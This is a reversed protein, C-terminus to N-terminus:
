FNGKKYYRRTTLPHKRVAELHISLREFAAALVIQSILARVRDSIGDLTFEKSDFVRLKNTVTPAFREVRDALERQEDEGKLLIVSTDSEILELTGHFFDSAHVPRTWIWQMEELICMGYYWAEFWVSGSGTMIHHQEDKIEHAFAEARPDFSEKVSVLLEPLRQIQAVVEDYDDIEGRIDMIALAILLSQLYFNESSTDDACYNTFNVDAKQALPTDAKATLTLIRAGKARAFELAALAEKTTGSVTPFVVLSNAGLNASGSNVLEASMEVYTPFTSKTQLLRAAPQMLFNVGGAGAFYINEIGNSLEKALAERIPHALKVAGSQIGVYRQEDFNFM